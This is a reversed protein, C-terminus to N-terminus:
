LEESSSASGSSKLAHLSHRISSLSSSFIMLARKTLSAIAAPRSMVINGIQRLQLKSYTFILNGSIKIQLIMAIEFLTITSSASISKCLGQWCGVSGEVLVSFEVGVDGIHMLIRLLELLQARHSNLIPSGM